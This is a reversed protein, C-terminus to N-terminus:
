HADDWNRATGTEVVLPVSLERAPACAGEMVSKVLAATATPRPRPRRSCWSTM